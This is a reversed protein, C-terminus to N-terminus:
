RRRYSGAIGSQHFDACTECPLGPGCCTETGESVCIKRGRGTCCFPTTNNNETLIFCANKCNCQGGCSCSGNPCCSEPKGQRSVPYKSADSCPDDKPDAGPLCQKGPKVKKDKPKAAVEGTAAGVLAAGLVARLVQRRSGARSIRQTLRDFAQHDMATNRRLFTTHDASERARPPNHVSDRFSMCVAFTQERALRVRGCGQAPNASLGRLTM